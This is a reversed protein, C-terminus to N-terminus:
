GGEKAVLMHLESIDDRIASDVEAVKSVNVFYGKKVLKEEGRKYLYLPIYREGQSEGDTFVGWGAPRNWMLDTAKFDKESGAQTSVINDFNADVHLELRELVDNIEPAVKLVEQLRLQTDRNILVRLRGPDASAFLSRCQFIDRVVFAREIWGAYGEWSFHHMASLLAFWLTGDGVIAQFYSLEDRERYRDAVYRILGNCRGPYQRRFLVEFTQRCWEAATESSAWGDKVATVAVALPYAAAQVLQTASVEDAFETAALKEIYQETQVRLRDKFKEDIEVEDEPQSSTGTRSKGRKPKKLKQSDADDQDDQDDDDMEGQLPDASDPTDIEYLARMVGMPSLRFGAGQRGHASTASQDVLDTISKILDGPDIAVPEADDSSVIPRERRQREIQPDDPLDTHTLIASAVQQLAKLINRQETTTKARGM